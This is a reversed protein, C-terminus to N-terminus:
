AGFANTLHQVKPRKNHDVTISIVDFRCSRDWLNNRKLYANAALLLHARKREDVAETPSGFAKSSRGKVEIFVVSDNDMAVIDVEKRMLYVNRELIRYGRTQLYSCAIDEFVAGMQRKSTM